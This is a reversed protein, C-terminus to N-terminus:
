EHQPLGDFIEYYDGKNGVFIHMKTSTETPGDFAGM